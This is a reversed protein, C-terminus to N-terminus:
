EKSKLLSPIAGRWLEELEKVDGDIVIDNNISVQLTSDTTVKGIQKADDVMREFKEQEEAKVTVIFRSQTESFLVTTADGQLEVKAGLGETDFTSEALAVALGGESIDHASEVVGEQIAELIQKQRRREIELDISPAKGSYKGDVMNQLESGGFEAKTEGILYIVDDASQFHNATVHETTKLLGVMGIIPTPMIAQGKSENYLSVNGSIVPTELQLCAERIGEISQEMQWFTEPNTPNGYNLGDTIALPTAGSCIINRSAEAVAIRGGVKPDLYIYRSNCDTTMAIAKDTGEIQVIAADSGPGVLTNGQAKRDYQTYAWEKSAITPQQLLTRLMNQHNDVAPVNEEQAQFEAYYAAEKKTLEYVPAEDTLAVVPIEAQIEGHQKIRFIQEEIVEGIAVADVDHKKFIDLIEQEKGKKVVLLMREQSESLMIEYADMNEERQPVLDLNMEIGTGAKAAMESASSTLGAAGMDQIGVLADSHIVELCAAILKKGIQPDGIAVSSSNDKESEVVDSSFTAGHIGDKGTDGGAYIVTNGVGEALGKQVDDHNVLGVVMANVLPNEEYSEDFQVEGGVTPVDVVNGYSAIGRVAESFLWKTHNKDLNGFRLSNLSAIPKAGMSFVDRLIGGVGTASGEFPEVASPSNHSEIKFVVAQNDGIDVVGAGEGPGQLVHEGETPFKRLLPKSTKYSCHESWMVSFISTETYNPLRNMKDKVLKFEADSLGMEQYIKEVEIQEPKITNNSM